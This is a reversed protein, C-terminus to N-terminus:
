TEQGAKRQPAAKPLSGGSRRVIVRDPTRLDLVKIERGLAGTEQEFDALRALAQPAGSEPLRVDIGGALM